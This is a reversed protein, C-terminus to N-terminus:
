DVSFRSLERRPEEWEPNLESARLYDAYAARLQGLEEHAIGRNFHARGSDSAGLEIGRDFAEISDAWRELAVLAYGRNVFAQPLTENLRLAADFDQLALEYDGFSFHLVGRNIYSGALEHPTLDDRNIALTCIDLGSAPLRSGTLEFRAAREPKLAAAACSQAYGDGNLFTVNGQAWVPLTYLGALLSAIALSQTSPTKM